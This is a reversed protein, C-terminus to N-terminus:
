FKEGYAARAFGFGGQQGTGRRASGAAAADGPPLKARRSRKILKVELLGTPSRSLSFDLHTQERDVGESASLHAM